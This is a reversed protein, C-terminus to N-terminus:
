KSKKKQMLLLVAETMKGIFWLTTFWITWLFLLNFWYQAPRYDTSIHILAKTKEKENVSSRYYLMYFPHKQKMAFQKMEKPPMKVFEMVKHINDRFYIRMRQRAPSDPPTTTYYYYVLASALLVSVWFSVASYFKEKTDEKEHVVNDFEM